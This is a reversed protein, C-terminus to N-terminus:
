DSDMLSKPEPPLHIKFHLSVELSFLSTEVFLSVYCCSLTVIYISSSARQMYLLCLVNCSLLCKLLYLHLLVYRLELAM